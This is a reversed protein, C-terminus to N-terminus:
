PERVEPPLSYHLRGRVQVPSLGLMRWSAADRNGGHRPSGYFGQMAHSLILDFSARQPGKEWAALFDDQAAAPMSGFGQEAVWRLMERYLKQHRKYKLTLQRDIFSVVGAERAGPSADPPILRDVVAGAIEAEEITFFRWPSDSRRCGASAGAVAAV